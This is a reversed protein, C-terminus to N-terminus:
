RSPQVRNISRVSMSCRRHPQQAPEVLCIGDSLSPQLRAASLGPLVDQNFHGSLSSVSRFLAHGPFVQLTILGIAAVMQHRERFCHLHTTNPSECFTHYVKWRRKRVHFRMRRCLYFLVELCSEVASALM